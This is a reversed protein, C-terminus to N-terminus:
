LIGALELAGRIKATEDNTAPVLPLRPNGVDVGLLNLATKVPIPSATITMITTMLPLLGHYIRQAEEMKGDNFAGFIQKLQPGVIHSCVSIIGVAGASLHPLLLPDDGSYIEFEVFGQADLESRLKATELADGVADKVGV